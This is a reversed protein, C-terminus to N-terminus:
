WAVSGLRLQELDPREVGSPLRGEEELKDLHAALTVAAAVRLTQRCTRGPRTWCSGAAACGRMSRAARAGARARPPARPIRAAQAHGDPVIPGHGPCIVTFDSREGCLRELAALYSALSGEYPTIFVSGHGLVADGSFCADNAM